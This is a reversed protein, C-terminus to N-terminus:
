VSDPSWVGYLQFTGYDEPAIKLYCKRNGTEYVYNAIYRKQNVGVSAVGNLTHNEGDASRVEVNVRSDGQHHIYVYTDDRKDRTETTFARMNSSLYRYYTDTINGAAKTSGAVMGIMALSLVAGGIMKGKKHNGLKLIQKKRM